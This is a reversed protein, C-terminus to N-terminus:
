ILNISRVDSVCYACSWKGKPISVIKPRICGLHFVLSCTDCCLLDGGKECVECVENHDDEKKRLSTEKSSGICIRTSIRQQKEQQPNGDADSDNSDVTVEQNAAAIEFARSVDLVPLGLNSYKSIHIHYDFDFFNGV